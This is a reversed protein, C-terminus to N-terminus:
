PEDKQPSAPQARVMRLLLAVDGAKLAGQMVLSDLDSFIRLIDENTPTASRDAIAAKGRAIAQAKFQELAAAQDEARQGNIYFSGKVDSM